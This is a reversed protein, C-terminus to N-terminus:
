QSPELCDFEELIRCHEPAQFTLIRLWRFLSPHPVRAIPVGFHSEYYALSREVFALGPVLFKYVPRVEIGLERLALWAAISDKGASFALVCPRGALDAKIAARTDASTAHHRDM